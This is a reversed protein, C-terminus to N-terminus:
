SPDIHPFGHPVGEGGPKSANMAAQDLDHITKASPWFCPGVDVLHRAFARYSEWGFWRTTSGSVGSVTEISWKDIVPWVESDLVCLIASAVPYGVGRLRLLGSEGQTGVAWATAEGWDDWYGDSHNGMAPRGRMSKLHELASATLEWFEQETPLTLWGLGRANKWAAIRLVQLGTLYGQEWAVPGIERPPRQYEPRAKM